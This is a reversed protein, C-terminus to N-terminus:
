ACWAHGKLSRVRYPGDVFSGGMWGAAAGRAGRVGQVVCAACRVGCVAGRVGQVVCAM